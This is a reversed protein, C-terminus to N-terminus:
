VTYIRNRMWLILIVLKRLRRGLIIRFILGKYIQLHSPGYLCTHKLM